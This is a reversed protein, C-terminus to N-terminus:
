SGKRPRSNEATKQMQQGAQQAHDLNEKAFSQAQNVAENIAPEIKEKYGQTVCNQTEATVEYFSRTLEIFNRMNDAVLNQWDNARRVDKGNFGYNLFCRANNINQEILRNTVDIQMQFLQKSVDFSTNLMQYMVDYNARNIAAIKDSSASLNM